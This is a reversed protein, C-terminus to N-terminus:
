QSDPMFFEKTFLLRQATRTRSSANSSSCKKFGEEQTIQSLKNKLKDVSIQSYYDFYFSIGVMIVDYLTTSFPGRGDKGGRFVQKDLQSLLTILNIFQQEKEEWNFSLNNSVQKMYSTMYSSITENIKNEVDDIADLLSFYRLVLEQLYLEDIQKQTPSVLDRFEQINSLKKLLNNFQNSQPRFICNRLEQDSLPAGLSNLRHFIEYRMDVDSDWKIVEVRCASRRINIIYKAPLDQHNKGEFSTIFKGKELYWNNKSEQLEQKEKNEKLIGFFSFVTSLRQLGDVVEWQGTEPVEAVFIAPIPIGLLLSEIFKTKQESNWRFLRQFEPSIILENNEYMSILEGFSMDMKETKLNNRANKIEQNLREIWLSQILNNEKINVM